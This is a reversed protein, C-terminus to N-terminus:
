SSDATHNRVWWCHLKQRSQMDLYQSAELALLAVM